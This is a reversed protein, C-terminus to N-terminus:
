HSVDARVVSCHPALSFISAAGSERRQPPQTAVGGRHARKEHNLPHCVYGRPRRQAGQPRGHIFPALGGYGQHPERAPACCLTLVSRSGLIRSPVRPPGRALSLSSLSPSIFENNGRQQQAEEAHAKRKEMADMVIKRLANLKEGDIEIEGDKDVKAITAQLLALASEKDGLCCDIWAQGGCREQAALRRGRERRFGPASLPAVCRSLCPLVTEMWTGGDMAAYHKKARARTCPSSLHHNDVALKDAQSYEDEMMYKDQVLTQARLMLKTAEPVMPMKTGGGPMM